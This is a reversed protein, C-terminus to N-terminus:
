FSSSVRSLMLTMDGGLCKKATAFSVIDFNRYVIRRFLSVESDGMQNWKVKLLDYSHAPITQLRVHTGNRSTGKARGNRKGDVDNAVLQLNWINLLCGYTHYM